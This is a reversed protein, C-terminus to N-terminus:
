ISYEDSIGRSPFVGVAQLIWLIGLMQVKELPSEADERRLLFPFNTHMTQLKSDRDYYAVVGVCQYL